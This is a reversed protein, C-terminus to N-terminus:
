RAFRRTLFVRTRGNWEQTVGDALEYGHREYLAIAPANWELTRVVCATTTEPLEAHLREVLTSALGIRRASSAVGLEALYTTTAFDVGLAAEYDDVKGYTSIPLAVLFGVPEEARRAVYAHTAREVLPPFWEAAAAVEGPRYDYPPSDQIVQVLATLADDDGSATSIDVDTKM